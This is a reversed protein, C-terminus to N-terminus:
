CGDDEVEPRSGIGPEVVAEVRSDPKVTGTFVMHEIRGYRQDMAQAVRTDTLGHCIM